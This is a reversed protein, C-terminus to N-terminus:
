PFSAGPVGGVVWALDQRDLANRVLNEFSTWRRGPDKWRKFHAHGDAFAFNAGGSKDRYGPIMWWFDTQEKRVYFAGGPSSAEDEDMFTFVRDPRRIDTYEVAVAPDLVYGTDGNWGGNLFVSLAVNFPRPERKTGYPWQTRDSPCRYNRESKSYTWLAGSRADWIKATQDFSGTVVFDGKPSFAVAWVPQDHGELSLYPPLPEAPWEKVMGDLAATALYQGDPSFALGCVPKSHGALEYRVRLTPM